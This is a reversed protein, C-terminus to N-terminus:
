AQTKDGAPKASLRSGAARRVLISDIIEVDDCAALSQQPSAEDIRAARYACVYNLLRTLNRGSIEVFEGPFELRFGSAEDEFDIGLLQAYPFARGRGNAFRIILTMQAKSGIRGFSTSKLEDTDEPSASEGEGPRKVRSQYLLTKPEM